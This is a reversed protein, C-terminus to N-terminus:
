APPHLRCRGVPARESPWSRAPCSLHDHQAARGHQDPEAAAGSRRHVLARAGGIEIEGAHLAVVRLHLAAALFHDIAAVGEASREGIRLMWSTPRPRAKWRGARVRERYDITAGIEFQAANGIGFRAHARHFDPAVLRLFAVHQCNDASRNSSNRAMASRSRQGKATTPSAVSVRADAVQRVRLEAVQRDIQWQVHQESFRRAHRSHRLPAGRGRRLGEVRAVDSDVVGNRAHKAHRGHGVLGEENRNAISRTM